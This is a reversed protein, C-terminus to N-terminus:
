DNVYINVAPVLRTIRLECLPSDRVRHAISHLKEGLDIGWCRWAICGDDDDDDSRVTGAICDWVQSRM